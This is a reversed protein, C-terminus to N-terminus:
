NEFTNLHHSSLSNYSVGAGINASVAVISDEAYGEVTMSGAGMGIKLFPYVSPTVEFEKIIDFGFEMLDKNVGDFVAEDYSILSLTGQFKVGGDTGSGVKFKLDKYNNDGEITGLLPADMTTTSKAAGYEVGVYMDAMAVGSIM